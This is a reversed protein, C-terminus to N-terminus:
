CEVVQAIDREKIINVHSYMIIIYHMEFKRRLEIAIYNLTVNQTCYNKISLDSINIVEM